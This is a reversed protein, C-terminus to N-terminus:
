LMLLGHTKEESLFYKEDVQEELICSLTTKCKGVEKSYIKTWDRGNGISYLLKGQHSQVALLLSSSEGSRLEQKFRDQRDFTQVDQQQVCGEINPTGKGQDWLLLLGKTPIRVVGCVEGAYDLGQSRQFEAKIEQLSGESFQRVGEGVEQIERSEGTQLEQQIRKFLRQLSTRFVEKRESFIGQFLGEDRSIGESLSYVKEIERGNMEIRELPFINETKVDRRHGVIFVRERNQPVGFNKSNLVQWECDYGLEDLTDLIIGFTRGKDHSLLGKVNELFLIRPKIQKAARAIEFFLTGRTEDLFGQRKGAVSFSQCPFGGCIVDVTGRFQSWQEDTVSTIDHFETEGETDHIAKYSARAFKDIECFAVCDHGASEMGLRFGGIGSFLDIFKM